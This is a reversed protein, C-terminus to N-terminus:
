RPQSGLAQQQQPFVSVPVSGSPSSNGLSAEGPTRAVATRSSRVSAHSRQSRSIPSELPMAPGFTRSATASATRVELCLGFESETELQLKLTCKIENSPTSQHNPSKVWNPTASKKIVALLGLLYSKEQCAAFEIRQRRGM